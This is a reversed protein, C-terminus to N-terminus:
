WQSIKIFSTMWERGWEGDPNEISECMTKAASKDTDLKRSAERLIEIRPKFNVLQTNRNARLQRM